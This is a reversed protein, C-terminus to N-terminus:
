VKFILEATFAYNVCKEPPNSYNLGTFLSFAPLILQHETVQYCPLKLRQKGKAKLIVGPHTHGSITFLKNNIKFNDHIFCLNESEKKPQFIKLRFDKYVTDSLKDHNGLILELKLNTFSSLWDHFYDIDSNYEAHFLDGVIILKKANFHHILQELRKLDNVLVNKSIPIGAKRFTASKGVHLDSLVLAKEKAWYLARQNTLVLEDNPISISQTAITFM